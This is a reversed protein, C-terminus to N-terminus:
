LTCPTFTSDRYTFSFPTTQSFEKQGRKSQPPNIKMAANVYLRGYKEVYRYCNHIHGFCHMKAKIRKVENFLLKSGQPPEQPSNPFPDSQDLIKYPPDHSIVVDIKGKLKSQSQMELLSLVGSGIGYFTIGEITAVDNDLLIINPVIQAITPWLKHKRIDEEHNGLVQIIYKAPQKSLWTYFTHIEDTTVFNLHDGCCILIDCPSVKVQSHLGHTDSIIEVRVPQSFMLVNM